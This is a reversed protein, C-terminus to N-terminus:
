DPGNATFTVKVEPHGVGYVFGEFVKSLDQGALQSLEKELQSTTVAEFAHREFWGHLFAIMKQEGVIRELQRLCLAGKQYPISDFITLVDIEPDPPRVPHPTSRDGSLALRMYSRWVKKKADPGDHEAMFRAKEYETFGESRWF